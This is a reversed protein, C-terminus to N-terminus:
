LLVGVVNNLLLSLRDPSFLVIKELIVEVLEAQVHGGKPPIVPNPLRCFPLCDDERRDNTVPWSFYLSPRFPPGWTGHINPPFM